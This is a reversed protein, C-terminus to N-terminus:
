LFPKVHMLVSRQLWQLELVASLTCEWQGHLADSSSCVTSHLAVALFCCAHAMCPMLFQLIAPTCAAGWALLCCLCPHDGVASASCLVEPRDAEPLGNIAEQAM